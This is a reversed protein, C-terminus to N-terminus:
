IFDVHLLGKNSHQFYARATSYIYDQPSEVLGARVPNMHIYELKQVTFAPSYSEVPHNDQRWFQYTVNRTNSQGHRKFLDLMWERRSEGPNEKIGRIIQISTYKKLDRLIAPLDHNLASALLHVHNSMICWGHLLPGKHQQCYKLSNIFTDRYHQRTFVDVWHVVAFTLFHIAKENRIKYGGISM